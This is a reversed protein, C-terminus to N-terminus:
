PRGPGVAHPATGQTSIATGLKAAVFKPNRTKRCALGQGATPLM